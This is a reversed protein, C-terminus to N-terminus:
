TNLSVMVVAKRAIENRAEEVEYNLGWQKDLRTEVGHPFSFINYICVYM